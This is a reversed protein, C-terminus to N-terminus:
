FTLDLIRKIQRVMWRQRKKAENETWHSRRLIRKSIDFGTTGDHGKGSYIRKKKPFADNSARINKKGSLLTLNGIKNLWFDAQEETWRRKWYTKKEWEMPLIHDVHLKRSYEIFTSEDTQGYEIMVLLPKLWTEWYVDDKINREVYEIIDDDKMKRDIEKRIANSTRGEKIERILRFCFNRTKATTHGAIWYSFLLRRLDECLQDFNRFNKMKATALITKWFVKDPMLLLTYVVKSDSNLISDMHEAFKQFEYIVRKAKKKKFKREFEEYLSRKPKSALLYYAYYTLLESVTEDNREAITEIDRWSAMFPTHKRKDKLKALLASKVLDALSLELGRTNIIQFIKIASVRDSCTITIFVVKDLIFQMLSRIKGIGSDDFLGDLSNKLVSAANMFKYKSKQKQTKTLDEQPLVVKELIEQEFRTHYQAQTILRLRFKKMRMSEVSDLIQNKLTEDSNRDLRHFYFDRLVCFLVTLTTLRQQGDVVELYRDDTKVLVIPGLFYFEDQDDFASYIDDWLQQIEEDGWDFPRQYNPIEYYSTPEGFVSQVNKTDPKFIGLMDSLITGWTYKACTKLLRESICVYVVFIILEM